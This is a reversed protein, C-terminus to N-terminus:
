RAAAIAAALARLVEPVGEGTAGSLLLAPRGAARSLAM